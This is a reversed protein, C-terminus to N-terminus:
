SFAVVEFFALIYVGCPGHMNKPSFSLSVQSQYKLPLFFFFFGYGLVAVFAGALLELYSVKSRWSHATSLWLFL